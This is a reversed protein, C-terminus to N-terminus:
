NFRLQRAGITAGNHEYRTYNITSGQISHTVVSQTFTSLPVSDWNGSLTNYQELTTITQWGTPFEIAQKDTGDETVMSATIINNMNQLAQKSVTLTSTTAYAPYVGILSRTINSTTGAPLPSEYPNGENSLPQEGINYSVSGTWSQSGLVVTYGSVTNANSLSTSSVSTPLGTGTYNYTNPLGSRFGSTTYAPNISGRNFTANFNINISDGVEYYTGVNETFTSSPNTLTPFLEQVLLSDWMQQSTNETFTDGATIGGLDISATLSVSGGSSLPDGNKNLLEGIQLISVLDGNKLYWLNQQEPLLM